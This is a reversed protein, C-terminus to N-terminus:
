HLGGGGTGLVVGPNPAPKMTCLIEYWTNLTCRHLVFLDLIRMCTQIRPCTHLQRIIVPMSNFHRSIIFELAGIRGTEFSEADDLVNVSVGVRM